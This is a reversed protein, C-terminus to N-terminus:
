KGTEGKEEDSEDEEEADGVFSDVEKEERERKRSQNINIEYLRKTYATDPNIQNQKNTPAPLSHETIGAPGESARSACDKCQRNRARCEFSIHNRCPHKPGYGSRIKEVNCHTVRDFLKNCGCHCRRNKAPDVISSSECDKSDSSCNWEVSERFYRKIKEICYKKMTKCYREGECRILLTDIERQLLIIEPDDKGLSSLRERLDAIKKQLRNMKIEQQLRFRLSLTNYKYNRGFRIINIIESLIVGL